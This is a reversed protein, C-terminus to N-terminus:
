GSRDDDDAEGGEPNAAPLLSIAAASKRESVHAFRHGDQVCGGGVGLLVFYGVDSSGSVDTWRGWPRYDTTNLFSGISHYQISRLSALCGFM